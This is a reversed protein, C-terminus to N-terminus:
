HPAYVRNYYAGKTSSRNETTLLKPFRQLGELEASRDKRAPGVADRTQVDRRRVQYPSRLLPNVVRARAFGDSGTGSGKARAVIESNWTPGMEAGPRLRSAYTVTRSYSLQYLMLKGLEM